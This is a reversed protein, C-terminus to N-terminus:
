FRWGVRAQAIGAVLLVAELEYFLADGLEHRWRISPFVPGYGLRLATSDTPLWSVGIEGFLVTPLLLSESGRLLVGALPTALDGRWRESGWELSIGPQLTLDWGTNEAPGILLGGVWPAVSLRPGQHVIWRGALTSFSLGGGVAVQGEFAVVETPAVVASATSTWVTGQSASTPDFDMSAGSGVAVEAGELPQAGPWVLGARGNGEVAQASGTLALGLGLLGGRM